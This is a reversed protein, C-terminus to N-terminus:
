FRSPRGLGPSQRGRRAAAAILRQRTRFLRVKITNENLGTAEALQAISYDELERLLLLHRDREPIRLLLKNLFDRQVVLTDSAPSPDAPLNARGSDNDHEFATEL